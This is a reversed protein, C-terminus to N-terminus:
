ATEALRPVNGLVIDPRAAITGACASLLKILQAPYLFRLHPRVGELVISGDETRRILGARVADDLMRQLHVRSVGFRRATGAVSLPIPAAPPFATDTTALLSWLLQNGAHRHMILRVFSDDLRPDVPAVALLGEIHCHGFLTFIEPDDLRDAVIRAAPELISVAELAVRLHDRWATMLMDTAAYHTPARGPNDQPTAIFNLHRLYSLLARARGSSLFGSATCHAKLKPLTLEGRMHLHVVLLATVYRGADKFIGDLARNRASVDLMGNALAAVAAPLREHALVTELMDEPIAPGTSWRMLSAITDQGDGSKSAGPFHLASSGM